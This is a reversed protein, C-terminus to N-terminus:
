KKKRETLVKVIILATVTILLCIVAMCMGLQSKGQEFQRWIYTSVVLTNTPSILSATVLERFAIIFIMMWGSVIGKSLLPLTIRFFVYPKSGGCIRGALPLSDGFQTFASTIYQISYPLFLAVYAVVMIGLTNYLPFVKYLSNWFLMIGVVLVIAPLMEPLMGIAEPAKYLKKKKNRSFTCIIIGLASAITASSLALILSTEIAKMGKGGSKFLEVYNAFTFNDAKLGGSVTKFFSTCVVSFYPVGIALLLIFAIYAIALITGGIPMKKLSVRVGKGGVVKYTKKETLHNQLLWMAFCLVTLVASLTAAMGFNTPYVTVYQHISTAFVYFAPSMQMGIVAPTGYESITKVFVLIAAIAYNGLLLPMDVKFLRYFFGGGSVKAAEELSSPINLMANKMLTFMFPFVNFTMILALGWFSYLFDQSNTIFPFIQQLFGNRALFKEWGMAAIYPPTMFPVMFVIDMWKAKAFTTRSFLYALPLAFITAMVTVTLGLLLSNGITEFYAYDSFLQAINSWDWKGDTIVSRLFIFFLPCVILVILVFAVAIYAIVATARKISDNMIILRNRLRRFHRECAM